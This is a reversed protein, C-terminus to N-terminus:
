IQPMFQGSEIIAPDDPFDFGSCGLKKSGQIRYRLPGSAVARGHTVTEGFSPLYPVAVAALSAAGVMKMFKRRKM